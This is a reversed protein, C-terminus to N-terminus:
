LLNQFVTKLNNQIKKKVYEFAVDYDGLEQCTKFMEYYMKDIKSRSVKSHPKVKKINQKNILSM